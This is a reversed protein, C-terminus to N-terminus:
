DVKKTMEKIKVRNNMRKRSNAKSKKNKMKIKRM